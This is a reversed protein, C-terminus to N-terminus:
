KLYCVKNTYQHLTTQKSVLTVPEDDGKHTLKLKHVCEMHKLMASTNHHKYSLKKSCLKCKTMEEEDEDIDFYKWCDSKVRSSNEAM